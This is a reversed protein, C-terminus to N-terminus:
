ATRELQVVNDEPPNLILTVLGALRQLADAKEVAYDHQDYTGEVGGIVHGLVRESIEASVGARRMLTKATRRLDHITWAPIAEGDNEKALKRDFATKARFEPVFHREGVGPFVYPNGEVRPRNRIIDLAMPPLTLKGANAKERAESPITWDGKDDIDDWRMSAVKARRQATLLCTQLFAGFTGNEGAVRWFLRLEADNRAGNTIGIVRKREREKPKSRRMGRVVPSVYDDERSAYWNFMTSLAALVRDATVQGGEDGNPGAKKDEIKDLLRTVDRRRIDLFARGKWEPLVYRKFLRKTEAGSRLGNKEIYRKVFSDHVDEFTEAAEASPFADEGAKIRRVGERARERAEELSIEDCNGVAAWKQKGRPDLAVITYSRHGTPSVRLYLGRTDPDSITLRKGPVPKTEAVVKAFGKLLPRPVAM